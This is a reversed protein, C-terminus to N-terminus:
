YFCGLAVQSTQALATDQWAQAMRVSTVLARTEDQTLMLPALEFGCGLQYRVGAEGEIPLGQHQLDAVDRYVARESVGIRKASSTATSLRRGCVLRVIQFLRDACRM